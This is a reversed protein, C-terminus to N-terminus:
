LILYPDVPFTFSSIFSSQDIIKSVKKSEILFLGLLRTSNESLNLYRMSEKFSEKYKKILNDQLFLFQGINDKSIKLLSEKIENLIGALNQIQKITEENYSYAEISNKNHMFKEYINDIQNVKGQLGEIPDTIERIKELNFIKTDM